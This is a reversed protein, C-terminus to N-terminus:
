NLATHTFFYRLFPEHNVAHVVRALSWLETGLARTLQNVVLLEQELPDEPRWLCRGSM